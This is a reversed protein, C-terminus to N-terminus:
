IHILSLYKKSENEKIQYTEEKLCVGIECEWDVKKSDKPILIDDNAGSICNAKSFIMPNKPATSGVEKAHLHFNKGVCFYNKPNNIFPGIRTQTNIEKQKSLDIKKIKELYENNFTNSSLNDVQDSIDRIVNTKDLAAIKEHGAEGVRLLKM